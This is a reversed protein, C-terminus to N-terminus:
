SSSGAPLVAIPNSRLFASMRQRRAFAALVKAAAEETIGAAQAAEAPEAGEAFAAWLLDTERVPLGYFFEEQTQEASYTDTTPARKVIASPIELVEALQYVQTKYLSALPFVEGAGDGHKVFFGQALELLNSTGIAAWGRQEAHLYLATMRSRQKVNTAAVIHRYPEPRLRKTQTSGDGAVRTLCFTPIAETDELAFRYETRIGDSDPNYDPFMQKAAADRVAYAGWAAVCETIDQTRFEVGLQGAFERALRTSEPSSDRDPLALALVSGAGFARASLALTVASDVGGSVGVVAGRVRHVRGWEALDTVIARVAHTPDQLEITHSLSNM